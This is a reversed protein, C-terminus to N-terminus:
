GALLGGDVVLPHGIVFSAQASCLWLVADAIEEPAAARGILGPDPIAAAVNNAAARAVM